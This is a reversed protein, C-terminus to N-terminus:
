DLFAVHRMARAGQETNMLVRHWSALEITAQVDDVSKPIVVGVPEIQYNSADTSYLMRASKDFRVEGLSQLDEGILSGIGKIKPGDSLFNDGFHDIWPGRAM